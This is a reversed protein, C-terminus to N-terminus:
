AYFNVKNGMKDTAPLHLLYMYENAQYLKLIDRTAYPYVYSLLLGNNIREIKGSHEM